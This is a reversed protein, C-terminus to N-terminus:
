KLDELLKEIREVERPAEAAFSEDEEAMELMAALDDSAADAEELPKIISALSKREGVIQQAREQNDWFGPAAMEADIAKIRAQKGDCDFLTGCSSSRRASRKPATTGNATWCTHSVGKLGLRQ